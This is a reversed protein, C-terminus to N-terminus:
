YLKVFKKYHITVFFCRCHPDFLPSDVSVESARSKCLSFVEDDVRKSIAQLDYPPGFQLMMISPVWQVSM